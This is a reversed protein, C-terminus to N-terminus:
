LSGSRMYRAAMAIKQLSTIALGRQRDGAIQAQGIFAGENEQVLEALRHRGFVLAPHDATFVLGRFDIACIEAAIHLGRVELLVAAVAAEQGVLVALALADDDDTLAVAVADRCDELSLAVGCGEDLGADGVARLELGVFGSRPIAQVLIEFHGPDVVFFGIAKVTGAGVHRFAVEGPKAARFDAMMVVDRTSVQKAVSLFASPAFVVAANRVAFLDLANGTKGKGALGRYVERSIPLPVNAFAGM